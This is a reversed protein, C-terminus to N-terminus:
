FYYMRKRTSCRLGCRLIGFVEAVLPRSLSRTPVQESASCCRQFRTAGAAREWKRMREGRGRCQEGSLTAQLQPTRLGILRRLVYILNPKTKRTKVKFANKEIQVKRVQCGREWSCFIKYNFGTQELIITICGKKPELLLM